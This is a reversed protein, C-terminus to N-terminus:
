VAELGLGEGGKRDRQRYNLVIRSIGSLIFLYKFVLKAFCFTINRSSLVISTQKSAVRQQSM